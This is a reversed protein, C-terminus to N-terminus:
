QLLNQPIEMSDSGIYAGASNFQRELETLPPVKEEKIDQEFHRMKSQVMEFGTINFFVAVAHDEDHEGYYWQTFHRRASERFRKLEEPGEAKEWNRESYHAAGKAMHVAWRYELGEKYPVCDPWILDFRPKDKTADRVMGSDFKVREEELEKMEKFVHELPGGTTRSFPLETIGNWDPSLRGGQCFVENSYAKASHGTCEDLCTGPMPKDGTIKTSEDSVKTIAQVQDKLYKNNTLALRLSSQIRDKEKSLIHNSKVLLDLTEQLGIIKKELEQQKM